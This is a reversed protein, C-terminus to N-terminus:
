NEVHSIKEPIFKEFTINLSQQFGTQIANAVEDFSIERQLIANLTTTRETIDKKIMALIREDEVSLLEALLQHEEGILISGHQLVVEPLDKKIYRRQASGVLKKGNHLIEFRASSSFCPISSQSKYLASFDPQHKQFDIEAGLKQLGVALAKSIISYIEHISQNEAFMVVSYTLENAHLIARGGTPRRVIDINKAACKEVSIEDERQNYGLSIAWPKWGYVRLTPPIEGRHLSFAFAEDIHMNETGSLFGSNIFRWHQPNKNMM